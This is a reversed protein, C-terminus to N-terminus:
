KTDWWVPSDQSYGSIKAVAADHNAKNASATTAGYGYRKPIGTGTLADTAPTLVPFDLRRHEAWAEEGQMYLAKWKETAITEVSAAAAAAVYTAADASSVGWQAMSAKIGIEYWQQKTGAAAPIWGRHAAESYCFAVQARSYLMGGQTAASTKIVSDPLYSVWSQLIGPTLVGYPMGGYVKGDVTQYKVEVKASGGAGGGATVVPKMFKHVRPDVNVGGNYLHAFMVDSAAFDDRSQFRDQWPSDNADAATYPYHVNDANSQLVGGNHAELFKASATSADIDAIRLAMVMKMTNGFKKWMAMNGNFMFDGSLGGGDLMGLAADIQAFMGMYVDKQDDFKPKLNDVGQLAESYPIAGWRDTMKQYMYVQLLHAVGMQMGASGSSSYSAPDTTNLNIVTQLDMLPGTYFGDFNWQITEYCSDDNYTIESVQQVLLTPNVGSVLSPINRMAGTILAGTNAKSVANPNLNEDGFDVTECSVFLLSSITLLGIIKQIQTKM